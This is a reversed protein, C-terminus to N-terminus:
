FVKSQLKNFSDVSNKDNYRLIQKATSSPIAESWMASMVKEVFNYGFYNLVISHKPPGAKREGDNRRELEHLYESLESQSIYGINKFQIAIAAKSAKTLNRIILINDELGKLNDYYKEIIKIPAVVNGAVADCYREIRNTESSLIKGDFISQGLGLHVLEHILTFLRRSYSQGSSLIGILPVYEFYLCLGDSGFDEKPKELVLISKEEVLARWSKYYDDNNKLTKKYDYFGFYSIINEADQEPNDGCLKLDFKLPKEDLSQLIDLYTQRVSCFEQILARDRYSNKIYNKKNRFETLEPQSREYFFSDSSLYITPVFLREGIKQLQSLKFIKDQSDLAKEIKNQSIGTKQALEAASISMDSMYRKLANSSHKVLEVTM